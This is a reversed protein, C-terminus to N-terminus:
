KGTFESFLWAKAKRWDRKATEVSVELFETAEEVSFGGFYRV